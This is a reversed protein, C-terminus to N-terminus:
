RVSEAVVVVVFFCGSCMFFRPAGVWVLCPLLPISRDEARGLAVLENPCIVLKRDLLPVVPIDGPDHENVPVVGSFM